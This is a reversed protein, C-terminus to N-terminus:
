LGLAPMEPAKVKTEVKHTMMRKPAQPRQRLDPAQWTSLNLAM